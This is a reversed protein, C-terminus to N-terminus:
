RGGGRCQGAGAGPTPQADPALVSGHPNAARRPGSCGPADTPTSACAGALLAIAALSLRLRGHLDAPRFSDMPFVFPM